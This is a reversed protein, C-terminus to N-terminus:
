TNIDSFSTSNICILFSTMCSLSISSSCLSLFRYFSSLEFDSMHICSHKTLVNNVRRTFRWTYNYEKEKFCHLISLLWDTLWFTSFIVFFKQLASSKRCSILIANLTTWVSLSSSATTLQGSNMWKASLWFTCIMNRSLCSSFQWFPMVFEFSILTLREFLVM